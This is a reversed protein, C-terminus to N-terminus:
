EFDQKYWALHPNDPYDYFDRFQFRLRITRASYLALVLLIVILCAVIRRYALLSRIFRRVLAGRALIDTKCLPGASAQSGVPSGVAARPETPVGNAEGTQM